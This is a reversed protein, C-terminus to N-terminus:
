SRLMTFKSSTLAVTFRCPNEHQAVTWLAAFQEHVARRSALHVPIPVRLNDLHIQAECVPGIRETGALAQFGSESPETRM